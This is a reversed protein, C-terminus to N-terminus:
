WSAALMGLESPVHAVHVRKEKPTWSWSHFTHVCKSIWPTLSMDLLNGEKCFGCTSSKKDLPISLYELKDNIPPPVLPAPPERIAYRWLSRWSHTTVVYHAPWCQLTSVLSWMPRCYELHKCFSTISNMLEIQARHHKGHYSQHFEHTWDSSENEMPNIHLTTHLIFCSVIKANRIVM